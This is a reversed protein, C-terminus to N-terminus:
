TNSWRMATRHRWDPLYSHRYWRSYSASPARYTYLSNVRIGNTTVRRLSLRHLSSIKDSSYRRRSKYAAEFQISEGMKREKLSQFASGIVVMHQHQHLQYAAIVPQVRHYGDLGIAVIHLHPRIDGDGFVLDQLQRRKDLATQVRGQGAHLSKIIIILESDELGDAIWGHVARM